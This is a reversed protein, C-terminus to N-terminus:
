LFIRTGGGAVGEKKAAPYQKVKYGCKDLRKM